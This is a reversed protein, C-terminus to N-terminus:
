STNYDNQYEGNTGKGEYSSQSPNQPKSLENRSQRPELSRSLLGRSNEEMDTNLNIQKKPKRLQTIFDEKEINILHRPDESIMRTLPLAAM